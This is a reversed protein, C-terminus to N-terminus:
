TLEGLCFPPHIDPETSLSDFCAASFVPIDGFNEPDEMFVSVSKNFTKHLEYLKGIAKENLKEVYLTAYNKKLGQKGLQPSYFRSIIQPAHQQFFESRYYLCYGPALTIKGEAGRLLKQESLLLRLPFIAKNGLIQIIETQTIGRSLSALVLILFINFDGVDVDELELAEQTGYKSEYQVQLVSRFAEKLVDGSADITDRLNSKEHLFKMLRVAQTLDFVKSPDSLGDDTLIKNIFYRNVKSLKSISRWSLRPRSEKYSYLENKLSDILSQVEIDL